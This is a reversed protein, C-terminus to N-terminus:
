LNDTDNRQLVAEYVKKLQRGINEINREKAVQYGQETLDPLDKEVIGKLLSVFEENTCGMYTNVGHQLWPSYAGIDRLLM